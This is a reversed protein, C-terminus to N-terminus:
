PALGARSSVGTMDYISSLHHKRPLEPLHRIAQRSRPPYQLNITRGVMEPETVSLGSGALFDAGCRQHVDDGIVRATALLRGGRWGVGDTSSSRRCLTFITHKGCFSRM